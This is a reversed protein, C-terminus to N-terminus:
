KLPKVSGAGAISKKISQPNGGYRVDGAGKNVGGAFRDSNSECGGRGGM